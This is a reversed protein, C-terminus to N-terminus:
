PVFAGSMAWIGPRIRIFTKGRKATVRHYSATQPNRIADTGSAFVYVDAATILDDNYITVMGRGWDAAIPLKVCENVGAAITTVINISGTLLTAGVGGSAATGAASINDHYTEGIHVAQNPPFGLLRLATVDGV